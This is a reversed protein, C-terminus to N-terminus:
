GDPRAWTYGVIPHSTFSPETLQGTPLVIAEAALIILKNQPLLSELHPPRTLLLFDARRIGM